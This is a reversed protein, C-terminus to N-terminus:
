LDLPDAGASPKIGEKKQPGFVCAHELLHKFWQQLTGLRDTVLLRRSCTFPPWLENWAAGDKWVHVVSWKLDVKREYILASGLKQEKLLAIPLRLPPVWRCPCSDRSHVCRCPSASPHCRRRTDVQIEAWGYGSPSCVYTPDLERVKGGDSVRLFVGLAPIQLSKAFFTIATPFRCHHIIAGM